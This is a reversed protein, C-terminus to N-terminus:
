LSPLRGRLGAQLRQWLGDDRVLRFGLNGPPTGVACGGSRADRIFDSMYSRHRGEVVRVGCNVSEDGTRRGEADLAVRHFCTSTWEWVNGAIDLLGRDNAGFAGTPQPGREAETERAAEQAYRALWRKSPDRVEDDPSEPLADDRLRDGAAYAWEADTPLRYAQGTTRSLWAAYAQADRWSAKVMPRDAHPSVDAAAAPCAGDEACRRYEAGTVQRIMISFGPVEESVVPANVPRGARTFDGALRHRVVSPPLRIMEPPLAAASHDAPGAIMAPGAATAALMAAALALKLKVALVM